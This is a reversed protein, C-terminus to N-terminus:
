TEGFFHTPDDHVFSGLHTEDLTQVHTHLEGRDFATERLGDYGEGRTDVGGALLFTLANEADRLETVLFLTAGVRRRYVRYEDFEGRDAADVVADADDGPVVYVLGWRDTEGVAPRVPAVHHGVVTVTEWGDERREAALARQDDITRQWATADEDPM